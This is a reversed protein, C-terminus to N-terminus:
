SRPCRDLPSPFPCGQMLPGEQRPSQWGAATLLGSLIQTSPVARCAAAAASRDWRWLTSGASTTFCATGEWPQISLLRTGDPSETRDYGLILTNRVAEAEARSVQSLDFWLDYIGNNPDAQNMLYFTHLEERGDAREVLVKYTWLPVDADPELDEIKCSLDEVTVAVAEAPLVPNGDDDFMEMGYTTVLAAFDPLRDERVSWKPDYRSVIMGWAPPRAEGPETLDGLDVIFGGAADFAAM